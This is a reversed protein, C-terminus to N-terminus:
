QNVDGFGRVGDGVRVGGWGRGGQGSGGPGSVGPDSGWSLKLKQNVDVGGGM